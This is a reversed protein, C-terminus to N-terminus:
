NDTIVTINSFTFSSMQVNHLYPIGVYSEGTFRGSGSVKTIFIFVPFDGAMFPQGPLQEVAPMRNILSIDPRALAVCVTM